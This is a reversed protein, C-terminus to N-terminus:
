TKLCMRENNKVIDLNNFHIRVTLRQGKEIDCFLWLRHTDELSHGSVADAM